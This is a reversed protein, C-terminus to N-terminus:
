CSIPSTRWPPSGTFGRPQVTISNEGFPAGTPLQHQASASLRLGQTRTFGPLYGYLYGYVVPSYIKEIGPRFSGGAEAGVGWRPYVQSDAKPLMLYGRVSGRITQM